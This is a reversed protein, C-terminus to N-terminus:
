LILDSSGTVITNKTTISFVILRQREAIDAVRRSCKGVLALIHYRCETLRWAYVFPNTVCTIIMCVFEVSRLATAGRNNIRILKILFWPLYLIVFLGILIWVVNTSKFGRLAKVQKIESGVASAQTLVQRKHRNVIRLVQGNCVLCTIMCLGLIWTLIDADKSSEFSYGLQSYTYPIIIYRACLKVTWLAILCSLSVFVVRRRSVHMMYENPYAICMIRELSLMALCLWSGAMALRGLQTGIDTAMGSQGFILNVPTAIVLIVNFCCDLALNLCFLFKTAFPLRKLKVMGYFTFVEVTLIMLATVSTIEAYRGWVPQSIVTALGHDSTNGNDVTLTGNTVNSAVM